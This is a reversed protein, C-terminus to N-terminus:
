LMKWVKLVDNESRYLAIAKDSNKFLVYNQKYINPIQVGNTIKKALKDDCIVTYYDKLAEDITYLKYNGNKIDELSCSHNITFNGQSTRKLASMVGITDLKLSIDRVLSRIYTGKSVTTRINFITKGEDYTVDGIMNIDRIEVERTPLDVDIHERAYEYLKKGHIKVASYIPVQQNYKGKMSSLVELIDKKLYHTDMEKLITGTTDITDTAIGLTIEAEYEKYMSTLVEVLKTAKGICIVLVGTAMPDLTGTHGVKKIGLEKSVINVVDRSTYDKEKNVVLIGDM